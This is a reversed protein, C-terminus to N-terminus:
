KRMGPMPQPKGGGGPPVLVWGLENSCYHWYWENPPPTPSPQTPPWNPYGPWTIPLSPRPDGPGWIVLPPETPPNPIVIPHEPHPQSGPPLEIPHTPKPPQAPPLVIPHTPVNDSMEVQLAVVRCEQAPGGAISIQGILVINNAQM